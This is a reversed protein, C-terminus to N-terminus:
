KEAKTSDDSKKCHFFSSSKTNKLSEYKVM